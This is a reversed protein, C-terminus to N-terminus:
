RHQNRVNSIAEHFIAEHESAFCSVRRHPLHRPRRSAGGACVECCASVRHAATERRRM